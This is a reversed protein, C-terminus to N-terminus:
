RPRAPAVLVPPSGPRRAARGVAQDRPRAGRPGWRFGSRHPARRAWRERLSGSSRAEERAGVSAQELVQRPHGRRAENRLRAALLCFPLGPPGLLLDPVPRAPVAMEGSGQQGRGPQGRDAALGLRLLFPSDKLGPWPSPARPAGAAPPPAAAAPANAPAEDPTTMTSALWASVLRTGGSGDDHAGLCARSSM